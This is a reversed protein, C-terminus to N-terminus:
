MPAWYPVCTFKNPLKLISETIALNSSFAFSPGLKQKNHRDM